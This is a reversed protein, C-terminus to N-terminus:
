KIDYVIYIYFGLYSIGTLGAITVFVKYLKKQNIKATWLGFVAVLVYWFWFLELGIGIKGEDSEDMQVEQSWMLGLAIHAIGLLIIAISIWITLRRIKYKEM